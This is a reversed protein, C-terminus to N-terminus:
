RHNHAPSISCSGKNQLSGWRKIWNHEIFQDIEQNSYESLPEDSLFKRFNFLKSELAAPKSRRNYRFRSHTNSVVDKTKKVKSVFKVKIAENYLVIPPIGLLTECTSVTPSFSHRFITRICHNQVRLM